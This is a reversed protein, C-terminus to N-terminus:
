TTETDVENELINKIFPEICMKHFEDVSIVKLSSDNPLFYENGAFFEDTAMGTTKNTVFPIYFKPIQKDNSEFILVGDRIKITSGLFSQFKSVEIYCVAGTEEIADKVENAFSSDTETLLTMLENDVVNKAEALSLGLKEKLVKVTQLANAGARKFILNVKPDFEHFYTSDLYRDKFFTEGHLVSYDVEISQPDLNIYVSNIRRNFEFKTSKNKKFNNIFPNLQSTYTIYDSITINSNLEIEGNDFVTWISKNGLDFLCMSNKFPFLSLKDVEIATPLPVTIVNKTELNNIFLTKYYNDISVILKEGQRNEYLASKNKFSLGSAIKVFGKEFNNDSFQYLNDKLYTYFKSRFHFIDKYNRELPILIPMESTLSISKPSKQMPKRQWLDYLPLQMKQILKKGKNAIKFFTIGGDVTTLFVYHIADFNEHVVKQFAPLKFSDESLILFVEKEADGREQEFYQTLGVSADLKGSLLNLGDIVQHVTEFEVENCEEGVVFLQCNIDSKPHKAIALGIAFAITKPNGWNKISSDIIIDRTFKDEEPPVEREIYLAENNAIRSMFVLDDNAFESILLKDFDGKNTIDSIGGLPQNSPLNHHLPIKLGSWLRKMLSGVHFTKNNEILEDVFDKQEKSVIEQNAIESELEETVETEPLGEMAKIISNVTPFSNNLLSLTKIDKHFVSENFPNVVSNYYFEESDKLLIKIIAKSNDRSIRNHCDKFITQFLLKRKDESKYENPLQVLKSLFGFASDVNYLNVNPFARKVEKAKLIQKISNLAGQPEYNTAAIALLLSGFPPLSQDSLFELVEEVWNAYAITGGNPIEFIYSDSYHLEWFYEQHSQFYYHAVTM